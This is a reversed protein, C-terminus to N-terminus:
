EDRGTSVLPKDDINAELRRLAEDAKFEAFAAEENREFLNNIESMLNGKPYLVMQYVTGDKALYFDANQAMKLDYEAIQKTISEVFQIAQTSETGAEQYYDTLMSEVRSSMQFAIDTRARVAATNRSMNLNSMKAIGIGVIQDEYMPPNILWEPVDRMDMEEAVPANNYATTACSTILLFMALVSLYIGKRKM